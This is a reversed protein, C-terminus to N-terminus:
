NFADRVWQGFATDEDIAEQYKVIMRSLAKEVAVQDDGCTATMDFVEGEVLLEGHYEGYKKVTRTTCKKNGIEFVDMVGM